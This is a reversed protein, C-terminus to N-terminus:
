IVDDPQSVFLLLTSLFYDKITQNTGYYIYTSKLLDSVIRFVSPIVLTPGPQVLSKILTISSVAALRESGEVYDLKSM